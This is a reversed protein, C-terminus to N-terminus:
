PRRRRAFSRIEGAVYGRMEETLGPYVGVWFARNMIADANTLSGAVRFPPPRGDEHATRALDVFAPQRVVNGAFLMRTQIKRAELQAVVDDRRFPAGERVTLLFGFWSPDAGPTPEPLVFVDGLDALERRFFAWNTRRAEVFGDLKALQAVGVAAQMDTMKLNYGVHSYAYKHDYGAPLDGLQWDFRKKCTNDKGPACWCDRGWDRLSEVARMLTDDSTLVAGGEGTTMHHPPYFSLTALDGFTATKRGRWLAGAADCNDEVLWLGHRDCFAKVADVDFPNGLTHALIVAGTRPSLAQELLGVDVNYGPLEVDVFVPVLGSQLIPAITTPFGAAVTIVEDGDKLAREGLSPSTLATFALLNASSGSNVACGKRLGLKKPM